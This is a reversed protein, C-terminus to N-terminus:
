PLQGTHECAKSDEERLEAFDDRTAIENMLGIFDEDGEDALRQFETKHQKLWSLESGAQLADAYVPVNDYVISKCCTECIGSRNGNDFSGFGM